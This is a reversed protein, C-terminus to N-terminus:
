MAKKRKKGVNEVEEMAEEVEDEEEVEDMKEKEEKAEQRMNGRGLGNAKCTYTKGTYSFRNRNSATERKDFCPRIVSM